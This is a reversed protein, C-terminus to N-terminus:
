LNNLIFEVAKNKKGAVDKTEITSSDVIKKYLKALKEKQSATKEVLDKELSASLKLLESTKKEKADFIIKSADHEAKKIISSAKEETDQIIKIIDSM